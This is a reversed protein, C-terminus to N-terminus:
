VFSARARRIVLLALHYLLFSSRGQMSQEDFQANNFLGQEASPYTCINCAKFDKLRCTDLEVSVVNCIDAYVAHSGSM